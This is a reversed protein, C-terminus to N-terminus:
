DTVLARAYFHDPHTYGPLMISKQCRMGLKRVVRVSPTNEPDVIAIIRKLRSIRKVNEIATLAAETAYGRGWYARALRFGIEAEDPGCRGERQNLGVYGIVTRTAPEVIARFGLGEDTNETEAQEAVWRSVFAATQAGNDSFRMVQPDCFVAAMAKADETVFKRLILRESKATEARIM